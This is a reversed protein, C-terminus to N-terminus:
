GQSSACLCVPQYRVPTLEDVVRLSLVLRVETASARARHADIESLLYQAADVDFFADGIHQHRVVWVIQM